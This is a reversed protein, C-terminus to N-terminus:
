YRSWLDKKGIDSFSIYDRIKPERRELNVIENWIGQISWQEQPANEMDQPLFEEAVADTLEGEENFIFDTGNGEEEGEIGEDNVDEDM